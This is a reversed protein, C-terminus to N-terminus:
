GSLLKRTGQVIEMGEPAAGNSPAGEGPLPDAFQYYVKPHASFNKSHRIEHFYGAQLMEVGIDLAEAESNAVQSRLMWEVANGGSFTKHHKRLHQWRNKLPMAERMRTAVGYYGEMLGQEGKARKSQRMVVSSKRERRPSTCVSSARLRKVHSGLDANSMKRVADTCLIGYTHRNLMERVQRFIEHYAMVDGQVRRVVLMESVPGVVIKFNMDVVASCPDEIESFVSHALSTPTNAFSGSRLGHCCGPAEGTTTTAASVPMVVRLGNKRERIKIPGLEEIVQVRDRICMESGVLSRLMEYATKQKFFFFFFGLM